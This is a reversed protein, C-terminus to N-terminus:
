PIQNGEVHDEPFVIRAEIGQERLLYLLGAGDILEMPKNQAFSFADPGYGSTTVLIGKNAGEHQMTGFLDRVASVGVTHKYRKAQIVVKGGLIERGDFGVVDVGGDRHSRTLKAEIGKKQFLNAVLEEFETPTLDMLNPRSELSPLIDHQEVFRKDVMNFDLVPKIPQVDYPRPSVQAGLNRLCVLKDVRNLDIEDFHQRTVRVSILHPQIDRGNAPDTTLTYGNFVLVDITKAEDSGFLERINRLAIAAVIDQYLEKRSAAKTLKEEIADKSRVYRYEQMMPVISPAPLEFELVLQKSEPVYAVRFESPFDEPYESNTLVLEAFSAVSESEGNRYSESFVETEEERQRVKQAYEIRANEHAAQLQSLKSLRETEAAESAILAKEFAENADRLAGHHKAVGKAFVRAFFSPAHVGRLFQQLQPAEIPRTLEVPPQFDPFPGHSRMAHFIASAFVPKANELISRLEEIREALQKNLGDVEAARQQLYLQKTAKSRLAADRVASRAAVVNAREQQRRQSEARRQSRASERAIGVIIRAFTSRRAM